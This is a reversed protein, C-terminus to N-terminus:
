ACTRARYPPRAGEKDGASKSHDQAADEPTTGTDVASARAHITLHPRTIHAAPPCKVEWGACLAISLESALGSVKQRGDDVYLRSDIYGKVPAQAAFCLCYVAPLWGPPAARTEDARWRTCLCIWPVVRTGAPPVPVGGALQASQASSGCAWPMSVVAASRVTMDAHEKRQKVRNAAMQVEHTKRQEMLNSRRWARLENAAQTQRRLEAEFLQNEKSVRQLDQQLTGDYRAYANQLAKARGCGGCGSEAM